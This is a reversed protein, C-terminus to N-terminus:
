DASTVSIRCASSCCADTNPKPQAQAFLFAPPRHWASADLIPLLRDLRHRSRRSIKCTIDPAAHGTCVVLRKPSILYQHIKSAFRKTDYVTVQYSQRPQSSRTDHAAIWYRATHITSSIGIRLLLTQVDDALRRSITKYHCLKRGMYGDGDWLSALFFTIEDEDLEFVFEPVFKDVSSAGGPNSGAPGKLGLERLWALLSNPTHYHANSDHAKAAGVRMVGRIQETYTPKVDPFAQLCRVYEDLMASDKSVFDALTGSTLSGDAILYALVRLRRRDISPQNSQPGILHPPTAVYQGLRLDSVPRWGGESLLRHDATIKVRAGSRLTVEFVPKFGSDIWRVVRGTATKWNQDVGQIILDPVDRVEDLRYRRGTRADAM